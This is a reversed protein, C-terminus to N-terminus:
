PSPPRAAPKAREIARLTDELADRPFLGIRRLAERGQRDLIVVSPVHHLGAFPGNGAITAADALAVPYPLRLGSAFAEVLPRNEGPELVLVAVNIRPTHQRLLDALIRAQAQSATDYTTIFGIVSIRGALSAPSIQTGDLAEYSFPGVDRPPLLSAGEAPTPPEAGADGAGCAALPLLAVALAARM